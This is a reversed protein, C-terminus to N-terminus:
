LTLQDLCFALCKFLIQNAFYFLYAASSLCARRLFRRSLGRLHIFLVFANRCVAAGMLITRGALCTLFRFVYLLLSRHLLCRWSELFLAQLLLHSLFGMIGILPEQLVLHYPWFTNCLLLTHGAPCFLSGIICFLLTKCLLCCVFGFLLAQLLLHSIRHANRLLLTHLALQDLCLTLCFLLVLDHLVFHLLAQLTLHSLSRACHLLAQLALHDLCFTPCLLLM